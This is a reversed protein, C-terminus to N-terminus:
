PCSSQPHLDPFRSEIPRVNQKWLTPLIVGAALFIWAAAANLPVPPVAAFLGSLRTMLLVTKDLLLAIWDSVAADPLISLASGAAMAFAIFPTLVASAMLSVPRWVGFAAAVLPMTAAQAGLSVGVIAAIQKPMYRSLIATLKLGGLLIGGLAAYSLAFSISFVHRPFLIAQILFATCLYHLAPTRRGRIRDITWLGYMLVARVLSPSLGVLLLYFVVMVLSVISAKHMGLIGRTLRRVAAAILGVHFGSLALLHMCGADRFSRIIRSGSDLRRGLVLASLFTWTDRSATQLRGNLRTLVRQRWQLPRSIWREARLTRSNWVLNSGSMSNSFRGISQVVRGPGVSGDTLVDLGTGFVTVRAKAQTVIQRSATEVLWADAAWSGGRIPRPDDIFILGVRQIKEFPQGAASSNRGMSVGLQAGTVALFGLQMMLIVALIERAKESRRVGFGPIILAGSFGFSVAFVIWVLGTEAFLLYLLGGAAM